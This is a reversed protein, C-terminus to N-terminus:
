VHERSMTWVGKSTGLGHGLKGRKKWGWESAAKQMGRGEGIFRQTLDTAHYSKQPMRPESRWCISKGCFVKLNSDPKEEDRELSELDLITGFNLRVKVCPCGKTGM